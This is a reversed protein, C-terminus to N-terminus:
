MRFYLILNITRLVFEWIRGVAVRQERRGVAISVVHPCRQCACVCSSRSVCGQDCGPCLVFQYLVKSVIRVGFLLLCSRM